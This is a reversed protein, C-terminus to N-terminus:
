SFKRKSNKIAGRISKKWKSNSKSFRKIEKGSKKNKVKAM